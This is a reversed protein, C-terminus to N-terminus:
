ETRATTPWALCPARPAVRGVRRATASIKQAAGDDAHLEAVLEKAAAALLELGGAQPRFGGYFMHAVEVEYGGETYAARTPLYGVDGNAYGVLYIKKESGRRLLDTFESFVEANAGLLIIGNLSVGFLEAEHHAYGNACGNKLLTARWHEVVRRYKEGWQALPAADRLAGDAFRNIGAADLVELPLPVVCRIIKLKPRVHPKAAPLLHIVAEAIQRGWQQMQAVAVNEAPPNLNACAGNTVLVVPQGPLKEALALAAAGSTDASVRRNDPGLAVPHMAYNVVAALFTGDARRFGLAAVLPDTHSSATKRRDVALDLQGEASVLECKEPQAVALQSVKRLQAHLFEVYAADYEGAERLHITSAGAHTHTASLMVEDERLGLQARAWRRFDQVIARDFGILDCHLWLLKAGDCELFLARAFLPDLVGTAPQVRAAFGSLEAGPPPTIEIQSTGLKM